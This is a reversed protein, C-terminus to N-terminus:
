DKHGRLATSSDVNKMKNRPSSATTGNGAARMDEGSADDIGGTFHSDSGRSYEIVISDIDVFFFRTFLFVSPSKMQLCSIDHLGDDVAYGESPLTYAPDFIQDNKDRKGHNPIGNFYLNDISLFPVGPATEDANEIVVTFSGNRHARTIDSAPPALILMDTIVGLQLNFRGMDDIREGPDAFECIRGDGPNNM